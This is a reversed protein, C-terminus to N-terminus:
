HITTGLRLLRNHALTSFFGPTVPRCSLASRGAQSVSHVDLPKVVAMNSTRHRIAAHTAPVVVFPLYLVSFVADQNRMRLGAGVDEVLLRPPGSRKLDRLGACPSLMIHRRLQVRQREQVICSWAVDSSLV